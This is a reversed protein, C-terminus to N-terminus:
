HGSRPFSNPDLGYTPKYNDFLFPGLRQWVGRWPRVHVHRGRVEYYSIIVAHHLPRIKYGWKDRSLVWFSFKHVVMPHNPFTHRRTLCSTNSQSDHNFGLLRHSQTESMEYVM